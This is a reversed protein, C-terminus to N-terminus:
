GFFLLFYWPLFSLVFYSVATLLLGEVCLAYQSFARLVFLLGCALGKASLLAWGTGLHEIVARVLPNGEQFGLALGYYTALGDWAQLSLNLLFLLPILWSSSTLQM